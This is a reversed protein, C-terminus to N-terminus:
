DDEGEKVLTALWRCIEEADPRMERLCSPHGFVVGQAMEHVDKLRARPVAVYESPANAPVIEPSDTLVDAAIAIARRATLGLLHAEEDEPAPNTPLMSIKKLAAELEAIRAKDARSEEEIAALEILADDPACRREGHATVVLHNDLVILAKEIAETKM